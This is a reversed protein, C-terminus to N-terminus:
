LDMKWLEQVNQVSVSHDVCAQDYNEMREPKDSVIGDGPYLAATAALLPVSQDLAVKGYAKIPLPEPFDIPSQGSAKSFLEQILQLGM